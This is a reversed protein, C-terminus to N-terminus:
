AGTPAGGLMSTDAPVGRSRLEALFRPPCDTYLWTRHSPDFVFVDAVGPAGANTAVVEALRTIRQTGDALREIGVVLHLSQMLVHGIDPGSSFGAAAGLCQIRDLAHDLSAAPVETVIGGRGAALASLVDASNSGTVPCVFLREPELQLATRVLSATTARGQSLSPALAICQGTGVRGFTSQVVVTREREVTQVLASLLHAADAGPGEVVLLNLRGEMCAALCNAMAPSLVKAKILQELTPDVRQHSLHFLAVPGAAAMTADVARVRGGRFLPADLVPHERDLVAGTLRQLVVCIAAPCSFALDIAQWGQGRDIEIRGPGQVSVRQIQPDSLLSELPGAGVLESTIQRGLEAIEQPSQESLIGTLLSEAWDSARSRTAPDNGPLRGDEGLAGALEVFTRQVLWDTRANGTLGPPAQGVVAEVKPAPPGPPPLPPAIAPLPPPELAVAEVKMDVTDALLPPPPTPGLPAPSGSGLPSPGLDGLLPPFSPTRAGAGPDTSPGRLPPPGAGDLQPPLVLEHPTAAGRHGPPADGCEGSVVGRPDQSAGESSLTVSDGLSVELRYACLYLEDSLGVSRSGVVREGNVFTGNTSGLDEVVITGNDVKIRAHHGSVASDTLVVDNGPARGLSIDCSSFREVRPTDGPHSIAITVM